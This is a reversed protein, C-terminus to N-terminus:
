QQVIQTLWFTEEKRSLFGKLGCSDVRYGKEELESEEPCLM